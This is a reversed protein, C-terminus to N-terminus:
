QRSLHPPKQLRRKILSHMLYQCSEPNIRPSPVQPEFDSSTRCYSMFLECNQPQPKAIGQFLSFHGPGDLHSFSSSNKNNSPRTSNQSDPVALWPHPPRGDLGFLAGDNQLKESSGRSSTQSQGRNMPAIGPASLLVSDNLRTSGQTLPLVGGRGIGHHSVTSSPAVPSRGNFVDNTQRQSEDPALAKAQVRLWLDLPSDSDAAEDLSWTVVDKVSATKTAADTDTLEAEGHPTEKQSDPGIGLSITDRNSEVDPAAAVQSQTKGKSSEPASIRQHGHPQDEEQSIVINGASYSLRWSEVSLSADDGSLPVSKLPSSSPLRPLSCMPRIHVRPAASPHELPRTTPESCSSRWRTLNAVSEETIPPGSCVAPVHLPQLAAPHSEGVPGVGFEIMDRPGVRPLEGSLKPVSAPRCPTENRSEAERDMQLEEQIRRHRIRKLEARRALEEETHSAHQVQSRPETQQSLRRVFRAKLGELTSTSSNKTVRRGGDNEEDSDDVDLVAPDLTFEELPVEHRAGRLVKADVPGDAATGSPRLCPPGRPGNALPRARRTPFRPHPTEIRGETSRYKEGRCCCLVAM